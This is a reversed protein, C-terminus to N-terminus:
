TPCQGVNRTLNVKEVAKQIKISDSTHMVYTMSGTIWADPLDDLREFMGIGRPEDLRDAM